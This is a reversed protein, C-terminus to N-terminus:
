ERRRLSEIWAEPSSTAGAGPNTGDSDRRAAQSLRSRLTSAFAEDTDGDVEGTALDERTSRERTRLLELRLREIEEILM